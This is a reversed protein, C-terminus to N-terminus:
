LGEKAVMAYEKLPWNDGGTSTSPRFSAVAAAREAGYFLDTSGEDFDSAQLATAMAKRIVQCAKIRAKADDCKWIRCWQALKESLIQGPDTAIGGLLTSYM